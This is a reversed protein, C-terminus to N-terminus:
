RWPNNKAKWGTNVSQWLIAKEQRSLGELQKVAEKAEDQTYTGYKGSKTPTDVEALSELFYMYDEGNIGENYAYLDNSSDYMSLYMKWTESDNQAMNLVIDVVEQKSIKGGNAEKKGSVETKFSIYNGVNSGFEDAKYVWTEPKYNSITQKAKQNAYDYAEKIAKVQETASLKQYARSEVLDSVLEYSKEGKLTAYRVYEEATLDKREGDVTFYKDARSPFVGGDGTLEYLQLLEEEMDSTEITSTYAPNLFNNLGRKLATGSAERRGWADIYPIQNYDWFPIKASAKGLTYQMDGTLFDNKETYTSMREEEGTREAQGSLTPIGQTLYSTVASSVVSVLGSTDNSSAYGIGEFLDNLGQLCSMELMPESIHSVSQLIASLNIEEESGKSTEWINVGVFFPLAEPALWDLTISQGNPLELSYSQHGMLEKFEKEEEDEGHGRILGQAALHVGLALLGTGTLGASINDIAESATMKGKGVQYLDYSLGKLMGLPSYEVGRVLINAPTKRFPLIGEIVTNFAKKVVNKESKNSRGWESVMQSFANTDRYTAKQAEKIAYDRAPAIAKGRKIQEATINNAKCYQALAYAYHPKSFLIDERELLESNKKRAWELPKFKFIRRGDQINKNAMASDNYKGGNSIMDAVNGYDSWAAKLLARDAKNGWVLAKGRVTKKGSVRYVAEEIATATLNKVGVVPAFFANGFLNRVHTRPNGLMALYRWANWKDIFRSPMQRGIDKYIEEEIAAREEPTKANIFQEALEEDIKLEPAKDGYKETLENQFAQVSKQVGYLQTEPSLKKLIRTAQLAQAASRQHRVMADLIKLSTKIATTRETESTTTAAINAANNYLAWGMTTLEKSVEGKNVADFWDDLSEDWGYTTIYEEADSLAQKDTYVDYSFIGDEVMKEITPVAEDPTAKAELITRVTQSVNKKKGSKRPVQVDRHPREGSPIVGYKEILADYAETRIMGEYVYKALREAAGKKGKRVGEVANLYDTTKQPSVDVGNKLSHRIDDVASPNKNTTNKIQNANLVIVQSMDEVMLADFGKERLLGALSRDWYLADEVTDIDAIYPNKVNLYVKYRQPTAEGKEMREKTYPYFQGNKKRGEFAYSYKKDNTFYWYDKGGDFVTFGGRTTGHYMVLLNGEKDRIKSDKFYEAQEKTLTKGESDKLSYRIDDNKTNFRESLPIVKGNDDYTVPEASKVQNSDLVLYQNNNEGFTDTDYATGKIIIGDYGEQKLMDVYKKLMEEENEVYKGTGGINADEAGLGIQKYMDTRFLEYADYYSLETIQKELAKREKSLELYREADKKVIERESEAVKSLYYDITDADYKKVIAKFAEWESFGSRRRKSKDYDYRETHYRRGDDFYYIDDYLSMEKDISEYGKYLEDRQAKTDLTEYVKPNNLRLYTKYVKGKENDGWWINNIWNKAGKETETFWFGISANSNSKGAFEKKFVTFDSKSGHYFTGIYGAEKAAEKVMKNLKAKNKKPDKALELYEQDKAKLSFMPQGEYLVSNKMSDTIPMSWVETGEVEYWGGDVKGIETKGVKAGWKKGYKNLFKPIDQDYEIRYGEAFADSWRKSQIDATTWGISDYGEEAAMRLLNKLVYEHYNNRFPADEVGRKAIISQQWIEMEETKSKHYAKAREVLEAPIDYKKILFNQFGLDDNMSNIFNTAEVTPIPAKGKFHNALAESLGNKETNNKKKLTELQKKLKKNDSVYGKKAGENHWDSQIEEIFLMKQGDVDFDQVRAHALIGGEGWHTSMADNTYESNPLKFLLERYNGSGGDLTYKHYKTQKTNDRRAKAREAIYAQAEELDKIKRTISNDGYDDYIKREADSLHSIGEFKGIGGHQDIVYRVMANTANDSGMIDAPIDTGYAENWIDNAEVWAKDLLKGFRDLDALEEQTYRITIDDKITKTEIQLQNGAVFEQLEAKTVSKKGELFTEIGSWKIEEAKVGRGTLYSVVSNAGIKDQKIGDITKGMHSYFTPAKEDAKKLSFFPLDEDWESPEYKKYEKGILAEKKTIYEENPPIHMGDFTNYGDTLMEDLVLEIRKALAINEQGEDNILRNLADRIDDYTANTNDKISAIAESTFRETGIWEENGLEYSGIKMREGQITNDLDGLLENALPTYYDKMEPFLFQFAKVKRDGVDEWTRNDIHEDEDIWKTIGEASMNAFNSDAVENSVVMTKTGNESSIEVKTNQNDKSVIKYTTGTATFVDGAKVGKVKESIVGLLAFGEDGKRNFNIDAATNTTKRTTTKGNKDTVTYTTHTKGRDTITYTKGTRNATYTEGVKVAKSKAQPKNKPKTPTEKNKVKNESAVPSQTVESRTETQTETKKQAEVAQLRTDAAKMAGRYADAFLELETQAQRKAELSMKSNTITAWMDELLKRIVELLKQWASKAQPNMELKARWENYAEPNSFITESRRCAIEEIYDLAEMGEVNSYEGKIREFNSVGTDGVKLRKVNQDSTEYLFNMLADTAVPDLQRMRHFGEHMAVAVMPKESTSSVEMKGNVHSANAERAKGNVYYAIIKDTMRVDMKFDNAFTSFMEREAPTLKASQENETFGTKYVSATQAQAQKARDQVQKDSKGAEFALRQTDNFFKVQRNDVGTLGVRYATEVASKASEFSVGNDNMLKTILVAGSDGFGTTKKVEDATIPTRNREEVVERATQEIPDVTQEEAKIYVENSEILQKVQERTVEKGNERATEIETAIKASVTGEGSAKGEEILANLSEEDELITDAVENKLKVTKANAYHSVINNVTANSGGLMVGIKFGEMGQSHLDALAEPDKGTVADAIVGSAGKILQTKGDANGSLAREQNARSVAGQTFEELYETGGQLAVGGVLRLGKSWLPRSVEAVAKKAARNTAFNALFKTAANTSGKAVSAKAAGSIAGIAKGGGAMLWSLATEGSEILTSILAEDNAAQLATEEDVGEALLTRYVSGRTVDYMQSFTGLGSGISMGVNPAGVASGLILGAGGGIVEPLIQDKLQPLYGAMSKTLWSAKVNEDDLAKENNAKYAKEFADYAYAIQKNEETPNAIYESMAKDAERSLENSRYNARWQGTFTDDHSVYGFDAIDDYLEKQRKLIDLDQESKYQESVAQKYSEASDLTPRAGYSNVKQRASSVKAKADDIEFQKLESASFTGVRELEKLEQTLEAIRDSDRKKAEKMAKSTGYASARSYGSLKTKLTNLESNITKIRAKREDDSLNSKITTKSTVKDKASTYANKTESNYGSHKSSTKGSFTYKPKAEYKNLIDDLSPASSKSQERKKPKISATKNDSKTSVPKNNIKTTKNSSLFPSNQGGNGKEVKYKNLIDDLTKKSKAM